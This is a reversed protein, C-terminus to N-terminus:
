EPKRASGLYTVVPQHGPDLVFEVAGPIDEDTLRGGRRALVARVLALISTPKFGTIDESRLGARELAAVVSDPRRLRDARYRGPPM